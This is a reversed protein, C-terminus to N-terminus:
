PARVPTAARGAYMSREMFLQESSLRLCPRPHSGTTTRCFLWVRLDLGSAERHGQAPEAEQGIQQLAGGGQTQGAAHICVRYDPSASPAGEVAGHMTGPEHSTERTREGKSGPISEEGMSPVCGTAEAGGPFFSCIVSYTFTLRERHLGCVHRRHARTSQMKKPHSGLRQWM